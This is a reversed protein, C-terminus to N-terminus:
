RNENHKTSLIIYGQEQPQTTEKYSNENHKMLVIIYGLTGFLESM